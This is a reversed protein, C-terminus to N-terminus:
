WLCQSDEETSKILFQSTQQVDPFDERVTMAFVMMQILILM